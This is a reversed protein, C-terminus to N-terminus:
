IVLKFLDNCRQQQCHEESIIGCVLACPIMVRFIVIYIMVTPLSEFLIKGKHETYETEGHQM